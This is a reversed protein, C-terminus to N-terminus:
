KPSYSAHAEGIHPGEEHPENEMIDFASRLATAVGKVDQNHVAMILEEACSELIDYISHDSKRTVTDPINPVSAEQQKKLFPLM